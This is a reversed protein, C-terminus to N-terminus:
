FEVYYSSEIEIYENPFHDEGVQILLLKMKEALRMGEHTYVFDCIEHDVLDDENADRLLGDEKTFSQLFSDFIDNAWGIYDDSDEINKKPNFPIM